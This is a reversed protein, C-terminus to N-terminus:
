ILKEQQNLMDIIKEMRRLRTEPKKASQLRYNIAYLNTKNLTAYFAKAKKNKVKELEVLFDPAATTKSPPDYAQAWRGDERASEIAELGAATMKKAAILREAHGTNIKSWPSRKRRPCFKQIWSTEDLSKSQGDIWGFCLAEDLAEAYTISAVSTNKKYLRL